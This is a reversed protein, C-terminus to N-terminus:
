FLTLSMLISLKRVSRFNMKWQEVLTQREGVLEELELITLGRQALDCAMYSRRQRMENRRLQHEEWAIGLSKWQARHQKSLQGKRKDSAVRTQEYLEEFRLFWTDRGVRGSNHERILEVLELRRWEAATEKCRLNLKWRRDKEQEPPQVLRPGNVDQLENWLTTFNVDWQTPDYKIQERLINAFESKGAGPRVTIWLILIDPEIEWSTLYTLDMGM